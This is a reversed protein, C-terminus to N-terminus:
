PMLLTTLRILFPITSSYQERGHESVQSVWFLSRCPTLKGHDKAKVQLHLDPEWLQSQEACLHTVEGQVSSEHSPELPKRM